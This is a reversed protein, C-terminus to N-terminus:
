PTDDVWGCEVSGRGEATRCWVRFNLNRLVDLLACGAGLLVCLVLGVISAYRYRRM